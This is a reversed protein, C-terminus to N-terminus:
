SFVFGAEADFTPAVPETLDVGPATKVTGRM